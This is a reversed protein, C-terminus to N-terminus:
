VEGGEVEDFHEAGPIMRGEGGGTPGVVVAEEGGAQLHIAIDGDRYGM